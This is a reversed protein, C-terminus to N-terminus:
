AKAEAEETAKAKALKVTPLKKVDALGFGLVNRAAYVLKPAVTSSVKVTVPIEDDGISLAAEDRNTLGLEGATDPHLEVKNDDQLIDRQTARDGFHDRGQLVDDWILTLDDSAAEIKEGSPKFGNLKEPRRLIVRVDTDPAAQGRMTFQAQPFMARTTEMKFPDAKSGDETQSIKQLLKFIQAVNKGPVAVKLKKALALLLDFEPLADGQPREARTLRGVRGEVNLLTGTKEYFNAVPFIVDADDSIPSTLLDAVALFEVNEMVQDILDPQPHNALLDGAGIVFLADIEGAAAKQLIEPGTLGDGKELDAKFADKYRNRASDDSLSAAPIRDPQAGAFFAGSANSERILPLTHLKDGLAEKLSRVGGVIDEALLGSLQGPDYVVLVSGANSLIERAADFNQADASSPTKGGDNLAAISAELESPPVLLNVASQDAFFSDIRSGLTVLQIEGRRAAEKIDLAGIPVKQQAGTSVLVVADYEHVNDLSGDAIAQAESHAAAAGASPLNVRWDINNTNFGARTVLQALFLEENTLKPSVLVAARGKEAAATMAEITEDLAEDLSVNEMEDDRYVQV